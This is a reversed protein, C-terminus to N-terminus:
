GGFDVVDIKGGREKAAESLASVLPLNLEPADFAWGDREWSASGARVKRIAALVRALIAADDYGSSAAQAETWSAYRNRFWRWAFRRRLYLHWAEPLVVAATKGVFAKMTGSDHEEIAAM